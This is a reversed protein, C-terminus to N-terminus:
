GYGTSRAAALAARGGPGRRRGARRRQDGDAGLTALLAANYGTGAGIELVRMGPGVDLAGIMIAM